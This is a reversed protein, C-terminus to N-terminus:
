PLAPWANAVAPSSLAARSQSQAVPRGIPPGRAWAARTSQRANRGSPKITAVPPESPVTWRQPAALLRGIPGGRACPPRTGRRTELGSPRRRALPPDSAVTRQQVTGFGTSPYRSRTVEQTRIVVSRSNSAPSAIRRRSPGVLQSRRRRSPSSPPGGKRY